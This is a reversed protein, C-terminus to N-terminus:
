QSTTAQKGGLHELTNDCKVLQLRVADLGQLMAAAVRKMIEYGFEHNEECQQRLRPGFFFLAKTPEIARASFHLRYPPFLWSWGLDDGPRLTQIPIMGREEAETELVVKGELVLYFRNAPQGERLIQEGAKYEIFMASANLLQLHPESLGKFFRQRAIIALLQRSQDTGGAMPTAQNQGDPNEIPEQGATDPAIM